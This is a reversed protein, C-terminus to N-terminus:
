TLYSRAKERLKSRAAAATELFTRLCARAQKDRGARAHAIGEWLSAEDAGLWLTAAKRAAAVADDLRGMGSREHLEVIARALALHAAPDEPLNKVAARARAVQEHLARDSRRQRRCAPCRIPISHFNFQLTEYWHKQEGGSFTFSAGCQTCERTEDVYFYKPTHCGKCFVQRGVDGRVAGRPLAPVHAPDCEWWEYTKGEVVTSHHILPIAGYLPHQQYRPVEADRRPPKKPERSM